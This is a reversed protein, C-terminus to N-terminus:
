KKRKKRSKKANLIEGEIQEDSIGPTIIKTMVAQQVMSLINSIVWYLGVAAPLTFAIWASMIPMFIMMSKMPNPAEEGNADKKPQQPNQMQSLKSVAWSSLGSLLPIIWLLVTQLNLLHAQGTFLGFVANLNPTQSLDLGLFNFNIVELNKGLETIWHNNMVEPTAHLFRAIQISYMGFMRYNDATLKDLSDINLSTLFSNLVDPNSEGCEIVASIIRWVDNEGFGMIYIVPNRVVFYLMMIIPLQILMPLCGSMPNVQYKQYLKMTEQSLKDKDNKYKEQLEMLLPQLKQTKLMSKQQKVTLPLLLAKILITFIIIAIGYNGTLMSCLKLIWGLVMTIYSM